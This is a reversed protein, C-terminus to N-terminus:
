DSRQYTQQEKWDLWKRSPTRRRDFFSNQNFSSWVLNFTAHGIPDTKADPMRKRIGSIAGLVGDHAREQAVRAEDEPLGFKSVLTSQIREYPSHSEIAALLWKALDNELYDREVSKAM